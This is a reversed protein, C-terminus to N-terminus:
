GILVHLARSFVSRGNSQRPETILQAGEAEAPPSAEVVVQAQASDSHRVALLSATWCLGTHDAYLKLNPAPVSLRELLLLSDAKNEVSVKSIARGALPPLHELTVRATTPSAYAVTGSRTNAGFWTDSPRMTPLEVLTRNPDPLEVRVWLPTSVFVKARDGAPVTLSQALRAVVPRDALLPSLKILDGARDSLYRQVQHAEVPEVIPQPEGIEIRSDAEDVGDNRWGIRWEGPRHALVLWLPGIAVTVMQNEPVRYVGHWAPRRGETTEAM